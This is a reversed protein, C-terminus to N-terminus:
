PMQFNLSCSEKKFSRCAWGKVGLGRHSELAGSSLQQQTRRSGPYAGVAPSRAEPKSCIGGINTPITIIVLIM